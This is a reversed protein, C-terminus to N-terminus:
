RVAGPWYHGPEVARPFRRGVHQRAPMEGCFRQVAGYVEAVPALPVSSGDDTILDFWPRYGNGAGTVVVGLVERVGDVRVCLCACPGVRGVTLVLGPLPMSALVRAFADLPGGDLRPPHAHQHIPQQMSAVTVGPRVDLNTM